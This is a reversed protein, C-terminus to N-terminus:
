AALGLAATNVNEDVLMLVKEIAMNFPADYEYVEEVEFDPDIGIGHFNVM